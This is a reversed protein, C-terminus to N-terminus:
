PNCAVSVTLDLCTMHGNQPREAGLGAGQQESGVGKDRAEGLQDPGRDTKFGLM